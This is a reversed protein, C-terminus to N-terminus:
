FGMLCAQKARLWEPSELFKIAEEQEEPSVFTDIPYLWKELRNFLAHNDQTLAELRATIQKTLNKEHDALRRLLQKDHRIHCNNNYIIALDTSSQQLIKRITEAQIKDQPTQVSLAAISKLKEKLANQKQHVLNRIIEYKEM